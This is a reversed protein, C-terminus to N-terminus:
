ESGTEIRVIQSRRGTEVRVAADADVGAQLAAQVYEALEGLRLGISPDQAAVAVSRVAEQPEAAAPEDASKRGGVVQTDYVGTGPVRVTRRVKGDSGRSVRVPGAGGSLSLGRKGATLRLGGLSKSKRFQVM